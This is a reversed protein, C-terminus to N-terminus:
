SLLQTFLGRKSFSSKSIYTARIEPRMVLHQSRSSPRRSSFGVYSLPSHRMRHFWASHSIYSSMSTTFRRRHRLIAGVWNTFGEFILWSTSTASFFPRALMSSVLRSCDRKFNQGNMKSKSVKLTFNTANQM